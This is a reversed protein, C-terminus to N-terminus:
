NPCFRAANRQNTGGRTPYVDNALLLVVTYLLLMLHEDRKKFNRSLNPADMTLVFATIKAPPSPVRSAVRVLLRALGATGNAPFYRMMSKVNLLQTFEFIKSTNIRVCYRGCLRLSWM